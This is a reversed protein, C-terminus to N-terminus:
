RGIIYYIVYATVGPLGAMFLNTSWRNRRKKDESSEEAYSSRIRDGSILAGSIVASILIMVLGIEAPIRLGTELSTFLTIILGVALLLLGALFSKFM